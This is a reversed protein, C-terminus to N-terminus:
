FTIGSEVGVVTATAYRNTGGPGFIFQLNPRILLWNAPRWGYNLELASEMHPAYCGGGYGYQHTNCVNQPLDQVWKTLTDSVWLIKGGLSITDNPRNRFTGKRVVGLTVFYPAVSNKPDGWTFSGFASLGRRPDKGDREIMTDAQVWVGYPSRNQQPNAFMLASTPFANGAFTPLQSYVDKVWRSDWYAGIKINAQLPGEYDSVGGKHWGLQVPVFAGVADDLGLNWYNHPASANSNEAYIGTSILWHDNGTPYIKIYGGPSASPYWTYGSNMAISQPMGCIGNNSFQCYLNAGWYTSSQEFDTEANMEGIETRVYKNWLMEWSLRTLRTFDYGPTGTGGGSIEMTSDLTPIDANLAANSGQRMTMLYHITGLHVGFLKQMDLDVFIAEEDAYRGAHERGGGVNGNWEMLWRGGINIGRNKLWSRWGGWDGTVTEQDMWAPFSRPLWTAPAPVYTSGPGLYPAFDGGAIPLPMSGFAHTEGKMAQTADDKSFPQIDSTRQNDMMGNSAPAYPRLHTGGNLASSLNTTRRHPKVKIEEEDELSASTEPPKSRLIVGAPDAHVYNLPAAIASVGLLFLVFKRQIFSVRRRKLFFLLYNFYVALQESLSKKKM